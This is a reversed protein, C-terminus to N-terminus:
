KFLRDINPTAIINQGFHSLMGRGMDDAYIFVVNPYDVVQHIDKCSMAAVSLLGLLSIQIYNNKM